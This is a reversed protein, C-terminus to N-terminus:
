LNTVQSISSKFTTGATAPQDPPRPYGLSALSPLGRRSREQEIRDWVINDQGTYTLSSDPTNAYASANIQAAAVAASDNHVMPTPLGLAYSKALNKGEQLSAIIADGTLDNTALGSFLENHGIQQKDVGYDHLKHAMNMISGVGSPAAPLSALNIGALSLNSVEKALHSQSDTLATQATTVATKLDSNSAATSNFNTVATQFDTYQTTVGTTFIATVLAQATKYLQQGVPSNLISSLTTNIKDFSDKHTAGAATGIMESMTPNGFLGSGTGTMPGLTDKVSQPVLEKVQDLFATAKVKLSEVYAGIKANDGQVGLNTLSNGLDLLGHSGPRLGLMAVAGPPMVYNPDLLDAATTPDKVLTVGTQSILKKLDDGTVNELAAMVVAPPVDDPNAPDAGYADITANIGLSEALGQKQLSKLMGVATLEMASFDFLSGYSKVGKGIDAMGANVSESKLVAQGKALATPDLLQGVGSFSSALGGIKAGLGAVISPSASNLGATLGNLQSGIGQAAGLLQSAKQYSPVDATIGAPSAGAPILSGLKAGLSGAGGLSPTSVSLGSLGGPLQGLSGLPLQSSLSGLKNMVPNMATAGNTIVDAFGASHVGMDAFSKSGFNQLAASFEAMSSAGGAASGHLGILSKIGSAPDGGSAAPAIQSAQATVNAAVNGATVLFSPLTALTTALGAVSSSNVNLNSLTAVLPNSSVAAMTVIMDPNIGLGSGNAMGSTALLVTPTLAM